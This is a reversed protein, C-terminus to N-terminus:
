RISSSAAASWPRWCKTEGIGDPDIAVMEEISRVNNSDLAVQNPTAGYAQMQNHADNFGPLVFKGYLDITNIADHSALEDRDAVAVIRDGIIGVSGARPRSPDGTYFDANDLVVDFRVAL